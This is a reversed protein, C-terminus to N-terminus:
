YEMVEREYASHAPQQEVSPQKPIHYTHSIADTLRETDSQKLRWPNPLLSNQAGVTDSIDFVYKLKGQQGQYDILAIGRTGQKISRRMTKTWLDFSAVAAADPRQAYIMVQDTFPYKYLTAAASLFKQWEEVDQLRDLMSHYLKVADNYKMAM